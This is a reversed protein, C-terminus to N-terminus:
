FRRQKEGGGKRGMPNTDSFGSNTRSGLGVDVGVDTMEVVDGGGEEKHTYARDM